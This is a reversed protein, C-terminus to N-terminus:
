LLSLGVHFTIEFKPWKILLILSIPILSRPILSWVYLNILFISLWSLTVDKSVGSCKLGSKGGLRAFPEKLTHYSLPM